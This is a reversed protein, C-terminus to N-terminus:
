VNALLVMLSTIRSLPCTLVQRLASQVSSNLEDLWAQDDESFEPRNGTITLKRLTCLNRFLPHSALHTKDRERYWDYMERLARPSFNVCDKIRLDVFLRFLSVGSNNTIMGALVTDNFGPCRTVELMSGGWNHLVWRLDQGDPIDILSLSQCPIDAGRVFNIHCAEIRITTVSMHGMNLAHFILFVAGPSLKCLVLVRLARLIVSDKHTITNDFDITHLSLTELRPIGGLVRLMSTMPMGQMYNVLSLQRLQPFYFLALSTPIDIWHRRFYTGDVELQELLPCLLRRPVSARLSRRGHEEGHLARLRLAVLLPAEADGDGFIDGLSPLSSIYNSVMNICSCGNWRPAIYKRLADLQGAEVSEDQPSGSATSILIDLPLNQSWALLTKCSAVPKLNTTIFVRTWFDPQTSLISLWTTCVLALNYPFSTTPSLRRLIPLYRIGSPNLQCESQYVFTFISSLIEFPLDNISATWNLLPGTGAPDKDVLM